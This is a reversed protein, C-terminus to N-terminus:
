ITGRPCQNLNNIYFNQRPIHANLTKFIYFTRKDGNIKDKIEMKPM